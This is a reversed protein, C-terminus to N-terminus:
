TEIGPPPVFDHGGDREDSPCLFPRGDAGAHYIYIRTRGDTGLIVKSGQILAQTYMEGPRPCGLSGDSWTVREAGVLEIVSRDIQLRTALDAAALEVTAALDPDGIPIEDTPSPTTADRPSASPRDAGGEPASCAGIAIMFLAPWALRRM